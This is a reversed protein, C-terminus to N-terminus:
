VEVTRQEAQYDEIANQVNEFEEPMMQIRDKYKKPFRIKKIPQGEDAKEQIELEDTESVDVLAMKRPKPKELEKLRQLKRKNLERSGSM